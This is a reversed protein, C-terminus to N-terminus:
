NLYAKGSFAGIFKITLTNSDIYDVDGIVLSDGSDVISVSPYKDLNHVITWFDSAVQQEYIYTDVGKPIGFDFLVGEPGITVDATPRHGAPLDHAQASPTEWKKMANVLDVLEPYIIVPTPDYIYEPPKPRPFVNLTQKVLTKAHDETYTYAYVDIPCAHQLLINPIPAKEGDCEVSLPEDLVKSYFHILRNEPIDINLFVHRGIDWQFLSGCTYFAKTEM